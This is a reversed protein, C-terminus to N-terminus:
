IPVTRCREQELDLNQLHNYASDIVKAGRLFGTNAGPCIYALTQSDFRDRLKAVSELQRYWHFTKALRLPKPQGSTDPLLHRGTFLIGGQQPLYVCTSGPSYGPTWILEAGAGLPQHQHFTQRPLNLLKYAEQEQIFLPCAFQEQLRRIQGIGDRHTIVIKDVGHQNLFAQNEDTLAPCDILLNGAVSDLVFYATGGLTDRNPAFCFIPDLVPRVM